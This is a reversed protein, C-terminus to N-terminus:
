LYKLFNNQISNLCQYQLINGSQSVLSAFEFKSRILSYYLAKLVLEVNFDTYRHKILDLKMYSKNKIDNVHYKFSLKFYFIVGLDNLLRSVRIFQRLRVLPLM